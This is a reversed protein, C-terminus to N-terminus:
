FRYGIGASIVWPDLKHRTELATTAGAYFSALPRVFYRKADLSLSLGNEGLAVDAGAQLAFGAKSHLKASTAGLATGGVGVKSDLVLFYSPGAGIYPKIAGLGTAHAKVTFTAPVIVINDLLNNVGTAAGAGDVHHATTCCITELSINPSFFYEIAVTPVYNDSVTTQTGAPAVGLNTRVETIEGDPLVGTMFVKVQWKGDPSGAMAPTAVLSTALAAVGAISSLFRTKM